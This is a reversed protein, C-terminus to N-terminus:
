QLFHLDLSKIRNQEFLIGLPDNDDPEQEAQVLGRQLENTQKGHCHLCHSVTFFFFFVSMVSPSYGGQQIESQHIVLQFIM